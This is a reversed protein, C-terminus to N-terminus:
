LNSICDLHCDITDLINFCKLFILRSTHSNKLLHSSFHSKLMKWMKSTFARLSEYLAIVPETRNNKKKDPWCFGFNKTQSLRLRFRNFYNFFRRNQNIETETLEPKQALQAKPKKGFFNRNPSKKKKFYFFATNM